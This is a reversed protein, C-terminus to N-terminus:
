GEPRSLRLQDGADAHRVACGHPAPYALDVPGPRHAAARLGALSLLAGAVTEWRSGLLGLAVGMLILPAVDWSRSM